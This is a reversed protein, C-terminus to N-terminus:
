KSNAERQELFTILSSDILGTQHRLVKEDEDDEMMEEEEKEQETGEKFDNVLNVQYLIEENSDFQENEEAVYTIPPVENIYFFCFLM